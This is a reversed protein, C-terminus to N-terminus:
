REHRSAPEASSAHASRTVVCAVRGQRDARGRAITHAVDFRLLTFAFDSCFLRLRYATRETSKGIGPERGRGPARCFPRSREIVKGSGQQSQRQVIKGIPSNSRDRTAFATDFYWAALRSFEPALDASSRV